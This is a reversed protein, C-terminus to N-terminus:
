PRKTMLFNKIKEFIAYLSEKTDGDIKSDRLRPLYLHIDNDSIDFDHYLDILDADICDAVRGCVGCVGTEFIEPSYKEKNKQSFCKDCLNHNNELLGKQKAYEYEHQDTPSIRKSMMGEKSLHQGPVGSGVV